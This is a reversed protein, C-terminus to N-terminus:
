TSRLNHMESLNEGSAQAAPEHPRMSSCPLLNQNFTKFSSLSLSATNRSYCKRDPSKYASSM